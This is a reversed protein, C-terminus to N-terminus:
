AASEVEILKNLLEGVCGSHEWHNKPTIGSPGAADADVMFLGNEFMYKGKGNDEALLEEKQSKESQVLAQREEKLDELLGSNGHLNVPKIEYEHANLGRTGYGSSILTTTPQIPRQISPLGSLEPRQFLGGVPYYSPLSNTYFNPSNLQLGQDVFPGSFCPSSLSLAVGGNNGLLLKFHHSFNSLYDSGPHLNSTPSSFNGSNFLPASHVNYTPGYLQCPLPPSPLLSSLSSSSAHSQPQQQEIDPPYIPLGARQHRKVRTNWYNKIENDTRGPLKSFTLVFSFSDDQAAMRAWKSGITYHLLIILREEETTFAGKKLDPRLHNAWRLRISKGCRLLGSNRQVENWKGHGHRRVYQILIADEAATWPGKRLVQRPGGNGNESGRGGDLSM